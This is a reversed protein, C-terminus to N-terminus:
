ALQDQALEVNAGLNLDTGDGPDFVKAHLDNCHSCYYYKSKEIGGGPKPFTQGERDGQGLVLDEFKSFQGCYTCKFMDTKKCIIVEDDM